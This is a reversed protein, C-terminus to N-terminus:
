KKGAQPKVRFSFSLEIQDPHVGLTQAIGRKILELAQASSAPPVIAPLESKQIEETWLLNAKSALGVRKKGFGRRHESLPLFVPAKFRKPDRKGAEAVEVARDFVVRLVDPLFAYVDIRKADDKAPSAVLLLDIRDLTRWRGHSDRQLGLTGDSATRVAAEKAVGNETFTLRAGPIVGQSKALLVEGFHRELAVRAAARLEQKSM